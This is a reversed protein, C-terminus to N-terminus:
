LAAGQRLPRPRAFNDRVPAHSRTGRRAGGVRDAICPPVVPRKQGARHGPRVLQKPLTPVHRTGFARRGQKDVHKLLDFKGDARPEVLDDPRSPQGCQLVRREAHELPWVSMDEAWSALDDNTVAWDIASMIVASSSRLSM